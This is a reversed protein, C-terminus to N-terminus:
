QRGLIIGYSRINIFPKCYRDFKFPIQWAKFEESCYSRCSLFIRFNRYLLCRCEGSESFGLIHDIRMADFYQELAKFRNKWWRYDDGEDSGL